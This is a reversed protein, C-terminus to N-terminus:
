GTSTIDVVVKVKSMDIRWGDVVWGDDMGHGAM